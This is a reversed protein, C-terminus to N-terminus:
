RRLIKPSFLPLCHLSQWVVPLPDGGRQHFSSAAAAHCLEKVSDRLLLAPISPLPSITRTFLSLTTNMNRLLAPKQSVSPPECDFSELRNRPFVLCSLEFLLSCRISPFSRHFEHRVDHPIHPHLSCLHLLLPHSAAAIPPSSSPLRPSSAVLPYFSVSM